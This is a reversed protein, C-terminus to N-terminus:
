GIAASWSDRIVSQCYRSVVYDRFTSSPLNSLVKQAAEEVSSVVYESPWVRDAGPWNWIVPVCGTAMGEGIAMHFSEADSPSLIYGVFTLWKEVDKGPPDFIVRNRLLDSGNIRAFVKRFYDMEDARKILWAYHDPLAGKIRLCYRKDKAVLAELLDLARDLRKSSPIIGIMGLTFQADGFKKMAKFHNEDVLNGIVSTRERPFPCLATATDRLAESVYAIHDIAEQAARGLYPLLREQAHFRAVLRQHPLKHRSYWELNGLCWECFIVDAEPLLSLSQLEDHKAHGKWQDELFEYRGTAELAQQLPRFFKLDHGAVLVVLKDGRSKQSAGAPQAATAPTSFEALWQRVEAVRSSFTHRAALAQLRGAASRLVTEDKFALIAAHRFEAPTNAFLPYDSGLLQEHLPNRNLIAACGAGGYELIKTSYEVTDDMSPARWSLGVRANRLELQVSDRPLAGLWRLGPTGDLARRMGDHFTPASPENHIKDGIMVLESGPVCQAVGPWERAMELTMWESKFKGAYVARRPRSALDPLTAPPDAIVPSYIRIKGPDLNPVLQQWLAVFGQSQCLLLGCGRALTGAVQRLESSYVAPDQPIDTLYLWTRSLLDAYAMLERAIDLGRVVLVGCRSQRDLAIALEAMQQGSLRRFSKGNWHAPDTGVVVDVAPSALVPAFLEQREPSSKAIYRVRASGTAAFALVFTQTWISSGDIYNLDPAACFIVDTQDEM